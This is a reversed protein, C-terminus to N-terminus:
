RGDVCRYLSRHLVTASLHQHRSAGIEAAADTQFAIDVQMKRCAAGNKCCGGLHPGVVGRLRKATERLILISTMGIEMVREDPCLSLCVHRYRTVTHNVSLTQRLFIRLTRADHLAARNTSAVLSDGQLQASLHGDAVDGDITTSM